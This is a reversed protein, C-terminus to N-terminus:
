TSAVDFPRAAVVEGDSRSAPVARGSAKLQRGVRRVVQAVVLWLRIAYGVIATVGVGGAWLSWFWLWQRPSPM